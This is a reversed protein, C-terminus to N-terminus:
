KKRKEYVYFPSYAILFLSLTIIVYFVFRIWLVPPFLNAPSVMDTAVSLYMYNAGKIHINAYCSPVALLFLFSFPIWLKKLEPRMGHVIIMYIISFIPLLHELWFQYYRYYMPGTTSIVAPTFLSIVGLTMSIYYCINFLVDNKSTVMFVAFICSWQCVQLPLKTMLTFEDPSGSGVYLLRWFYSMEVILMVFSLIYRFRGEWKWSRIVERKRWVLVVAAVLLLIPLIHWISLYQFDGNEGYGFFGENSFDYM